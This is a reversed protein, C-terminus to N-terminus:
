VENKHTYQDIIHMLIITDISETSNILPDIRANFQSIKILNPALSIQTNTFFNMMTM